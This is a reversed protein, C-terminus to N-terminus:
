QRVLPMLKPRSLENIKASMEARLVRVEDRFAKIEEATAPRSVDVQDFRASLNQVRTEMSSLLSVVKQREVAPSDVHGRLLEVQVELDAVRRTTHITVYAALCLAVAALVAPLISRMSKM